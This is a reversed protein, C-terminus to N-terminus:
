TVVGFTKGSALVAKFTLAGAIIGFAEGFGALGVIAAAFGTIGGYHGQAMGILTALTTAIITYVLVGLGLGGLVKRVIPLAAAELFAGLPITILSM